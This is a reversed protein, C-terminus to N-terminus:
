RSSYPHQMRVHPLHSGENLALTLCLVQLKDFISPGTVRQKVPTVPIPQLASLYDELMLAEVQCYPCCDLHQRVTSAQENSLLGLQYDGLEIATIHKMSM